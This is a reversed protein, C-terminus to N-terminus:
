NAKSQHKELLKLLQGGANSQSKMRLEELERKKRIEVKNKSPGEGHFKACIYRYAEKPKMLNGSANRYELKIRDSPDNYSVTKDNHRGM